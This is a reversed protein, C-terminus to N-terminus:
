PGHFRSLMTCLEDRRDFCVWKIRIFHPSLCSGLPQFNLLLPVCRLRAISDVLDVLLRPEIASIRGLEASIGDLLPWRGLPLLSIRRFCACLGEAGESLVRRPAGERLLEALPHAGTPAGGPSAVLEYLGWAASLMHASRLQGLTHRSEFQQALRTAIPAHCHPPGLRILVDIM